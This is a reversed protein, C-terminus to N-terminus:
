FASTIYEEAKEIRGAPISKLLTNLQETTMTSVKGDLVVTVSQGALTIGGDVEAVGPLEKIADYANEVPLNTIMRPLDYVLKGQTAKVMPREGTVMVEPLQRYLSDLKSDMTILSDASLTRETEQAMAQTVLATILTLTLYTRKM